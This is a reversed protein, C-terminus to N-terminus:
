AHVCPLCFLSRSEWPTLSDFLEPSPCHVGGCLLGVVRLLPAEIQRVNPLRDGEHALAPSHGGLLQHRPIPIMPPPQEVPVIGVRSFLPASLLRPHKEVTEPRLEFPHADSREDMDALVLLLPDLFVSIVRDLGDGLM